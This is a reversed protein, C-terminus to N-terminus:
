KHKKIDTYFEKQWSNGPSKYVKKEFLVALVCAVVIYGLSWLLKSGIISNMERRIVEPIVTALETVDNGSFDAIQLYCGLLPYEELLYSFVQQSKNTNVVGSLNETMQKLFIEM